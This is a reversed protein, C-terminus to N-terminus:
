APFLFREMVIRAIDEPTKQNGEFHLCVINDACPQIPFALSGGKLGSIELSHRDPSLSITLIEPRMGLPNHTPGDIYDLSGSESNGNPRLVFGKGNAEDAILVVQDWAAEFLAPANAKIDAARSKNYELEKLKADLWTM